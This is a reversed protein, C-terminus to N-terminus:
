ADGQAGGAKLKNQMFTDTALNEDSFYFEVQKM